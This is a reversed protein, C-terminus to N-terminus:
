QQKEFEAGGGGEMNANVRARGRKRRKCSEEVWFASRPLCLLDERLLAFGNPNM